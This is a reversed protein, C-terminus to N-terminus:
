GNTVKGVKEAGQVACWRRSRASGPYRSGQYASEPEALAGLETRCMEPGAGEAKPRPVGWASFALYELSPTYLFVTM